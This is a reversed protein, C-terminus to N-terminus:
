ERSMRMSCLYLLLISSSITSEKISVLRAESLFIDCPLVAQCHWILVVLELPDLVLFFHIRKVFIKSALRHVYVCFWGTQHILFGLSLSLSHFLCLLLFVFVSILLLVQLDLFSGAALVRFANSDDLKPYHGYLYALATAVADGNVNEDDIQLAVEHAGAEKWPGQLM